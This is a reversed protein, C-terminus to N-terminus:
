ISLGDWFFNNYIRNLIQRFFTMRYEFNTLSFDDYKPMHAYFCYSLIHYKKTLRGYFKYLIKKPHLSYYYKFPPIALETGSSDSLAWNRGQVVFITTKTRLSECGAWNRGQVVFIIMKTRLSECGTWIWGKSIALYGKTLFQISTLRLPPPPSNPL